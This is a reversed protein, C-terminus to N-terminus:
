QAGGQAAVSGKLGVSAGGQAANTAGELTEGAKAKAGGVVDGATTMAGAAHSKASGAVHKV